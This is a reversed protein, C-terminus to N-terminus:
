CDRALNKRKEIRGSNRLLSTRQQLTTGQVLFVVCSRTRIIDVGKEMNKKNGYKWM